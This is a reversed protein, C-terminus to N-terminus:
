ELQARGDEARRRGVGDPQGLGRLCRADVEGGAVDPDRDVGALWSRAHRSGAVQDLPREARAAEVVRAHSLKTRGANRAGRAVAYVQDLRLEDKFGAIFAAADM